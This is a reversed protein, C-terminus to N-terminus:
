EDSVGGTFLYGRKVRTFGLAPLVKKTEAKQFHLNQGFYLFIDAPTIIKKNAIEYIYHKHCKEALIQFIIAPADADKKYESSLTIKDEITDIMKM